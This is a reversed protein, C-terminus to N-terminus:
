MHLRKHIEVFVNKERFIVMGLLSIVSSALCILWPIPPKQFFIDLMIFTIIGIGSNMFIYVLSNKKFEKGILSLVFDLIIVVSLICPIIGNVALSLFKYFWALYLIDACAILMTFFIIKPLNHSKLYFYSVLWYVSIMVVVTPVTYHRHTSSLAFFDIIIAIAIISAILFQIWKYVLSVKKEKLIPPWISPCGEGQLPSQCLPCALNLGEVHVKCYPCYKM